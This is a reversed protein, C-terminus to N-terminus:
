IVQFIQQYYKIITRVSNVCVTGLIFSLVIIIISIIIKNRRTYDPNFWLLPLALPGVTLFSIILIHTKFYWKKEPKKELFEGCYRCKVAEDKIEEACFPCKKM